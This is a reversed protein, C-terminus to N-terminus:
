GKALRAAMKEADEEQIAAAAKEVLSLVDGMGLIRGAVRKPHFPELADLKEGMGAFKIPKGTVARMSLAAGGRADGDMRTLIVGTLPVQESFSTAVNVADQG